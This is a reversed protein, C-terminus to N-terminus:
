HQLSQQKSQATNSIIFGAIGQNRHWQLWKCLAYVLHATCDGLVGSDCASVYQPTALHTTWKLPFMFHFFPSTLIGTLSTNTLNSNNSSSRITSPEKQPTHGQDIILSKNQQHSISTLRFSIQDLCIGGTRWGEKM